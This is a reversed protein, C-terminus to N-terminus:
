NPTNENKNQSRYRNTTATRDAAFNMLAFIPPIIYIAPSIITLFTTLHFCRLFRVTGTHINWEM